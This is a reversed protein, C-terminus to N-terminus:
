TRDESQHNDSSTRILAGKGHSVIRGNIRLNSVVGIFGPVGSYQRRIRACERLNRQRHYFAARRSQKSM